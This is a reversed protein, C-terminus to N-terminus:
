CDLCIVRFIGELVRCSANAIYGDKYDLGESVKSSDNFTIAVRLIFIFARNGVPRSSLSRYTAVSTVTGTMWFLGPWTAIHPLCMFICYGTVKSCQTFSDSRLSWLKIGWSRDLFHDQAAYDSIIYIYIIYLIYICYISYTNWCGQSKGNIKWGEKQDMMSKVWTFFDSANADFFYWANRNTRLWGFCRLYKQIM